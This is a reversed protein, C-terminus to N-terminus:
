WGLFVVQSIRDIGIDKNHIIHFHILLSLGGFRYGTFAGKISRLRKKPLFIESKLLFM